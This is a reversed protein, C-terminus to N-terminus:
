LNVMVVSVNDPKLGDEAIVFDRFQEAEEISEREGLYSANNFMGNRERYCLIIAYKVM